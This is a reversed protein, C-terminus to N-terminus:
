GEMCILGHLDFKPMIKPTEFFARGVRCIDIKHIEHYHLVTLPSWERQLGSPAEKFNDM